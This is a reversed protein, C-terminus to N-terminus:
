IPGHSSPASIRLKCPPGGAKLCPPWFVAFGGELPREGVQQFAAEQERGARGLVHYGHAEGQNVVGFRRHGHDMISYVDIFDFVVSNGAAVLVRDFGM